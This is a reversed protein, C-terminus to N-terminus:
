LGQCLQCGWCLVCVCIYKRIIVIYVLGLTALLNECSQFTFSSLPFDSLWEKLHILNVQKRPASSLNRAQMKNLELDAATKATLWGAWDLVDLHAAVCFGLKGTELCEHFEPGCTTKDQPLWYEWQSRENQCLVFTISFFLINFIYGIIVERHHKKWVEFVKCTGLCKHPIDSWLLFTPTATNYLPSWGEALPSTTLFTQKLIEETEKSQHRVKSGM